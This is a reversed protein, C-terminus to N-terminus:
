PTETDIPKSFFKSINKKPMEYWEGTYVTMANVGFTKYLFEWRACAEANSDCDWEATPWAGDETQVIGPVADAAKQGNGKDRYWRLYIRTTRVPM